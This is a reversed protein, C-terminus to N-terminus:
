SVLYLRGDTGSFSHGRLAQPTAPIKEDGDYFSLGYLAYSGISELGEGFTIDTIGTCRGLAKFGLSKVNVLDVSALTQCSLLASDGVSEVSLRWGNYVVSSPLHSAGEGYGIAAVTRGEVSSMAYRIGDVSFEDGDSIGGAMRLVKGSGFYSHGRLKLSQDMAKGDM